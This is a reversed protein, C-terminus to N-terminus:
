YFWRSQTYTTEYTCYDSQYQNWKDKFDNSFLITFRDIIDLKYGSIFDLRKRYNYEFHIRLSPHGSYDLWIAESGYAKQKIDDLSADNRLKFKKLLTDRTSARNIELYYMIDISEVKLMEIKPPYLNKYDSVVQEIVSFYNGSKILDQYRTDTCYEAFCDEITLNSEELIDFIREFCGAKSERNYDDENFYDKLLLLIEEFPNQNIIQEKSM